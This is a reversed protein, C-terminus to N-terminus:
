RIYHFLTFVCMLFFHLIRIYIYIYIYIQKSVISISFIYTPSSDLLGSYQWMVDLIHIYPRLMMKM